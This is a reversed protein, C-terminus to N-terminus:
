FWLEGGLFTPISTGHMKNAFAAYSELRLAVGPTPRYRLGLGIGGAIFQDSSSGDTLAIPLAGVAHLSLADGAIRVRVAPVVAYAVFVADVGLELRSGLAVAVGLSPAGTDSALRLNTGFGAGIAFRRDRRAPAVTRAPQAVAAATSSRATPEAPAPAPAALVLEVTLEDGSAVRVTRETDRRGPARAVLHHEGAPLILPMVPDDLPEGDLVLTTDDVEPAITVTVRAVLALISDLESQAATLRAAAVVGKGETLFRHYFTVAEAYHSLQRHCGAINYLVLPHPAIEYAREFEALAESYKGEKFLAVGSKFHHDAEKQGPKPAPKPASKPAPKKGAAPRPDPAAHLAPPAVAILALAILTIRMDM